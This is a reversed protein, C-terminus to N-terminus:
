AADPLVPPPADWAYRSPMLSLDSAIAEDWEVVRGSYTAMRGLISTMTAIAGNEGDAYKSKGAAIAAFLEDHEVQYPNPDEEDDYEFLAHGTSSKILGPEPATGNSGHFAETVRDMCEPMHRCQSLVTAGSDYTFEVFHHDFIEGHDLGTRVQRGGQGQARVPHDGLVWNAVDINHIHQEVIHDGCLWNFYYWNRMQYEMETQDPQRERVWVGASNWYIRGLVIDGIMGAHLRNVWERYMTQYHRQLGVVVNLGDAKAKSASELVRRIGPSDTAVPKEMFVHKGANVAAEFHIPRFGPPTALLVVDVQPLVHEYADFGSYRREPPVDIRPNLDVDELTTLTEYSGEVRDAFVDAMAVLQVDQETSLAQVTAGTGRGGCGIVGIRIPNSGSPQARAFRPTGVFTLGGMATTTAKMFRRRDM